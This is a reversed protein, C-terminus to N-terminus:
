ARYCPKKAGTYEGSKSVTVHSIAKSGGKEVKKARKIQASTVKAPEGGNDKKRVRIRKKGNM